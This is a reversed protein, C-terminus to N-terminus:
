PKTEEEYTSVSENWWGVSCERSFSEGSLGSCNEPCNTSYGIDCDTVPEAGCLPCPHVRVVGESAQGM